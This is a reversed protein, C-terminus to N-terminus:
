RDAVPGSRLVSEGTLGYAKVHVPLGVKSAALM